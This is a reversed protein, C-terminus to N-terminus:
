QQLIPADPSLPEIGTIHLFLILTLALASYAVWGFAGFMIAKGFRQPIRNKGVFERVFRVQKLGLSLSWSIWFGFFLAIMLYKGFFTDRIFPEAMTYAFFTFFSWKVWAMNRAALEDDGLERWNLGQLFGGFMPTFLLTLLVCALPNYIKPLPKAQQEPEQQPHRANDNTRGQNKEPMFELPLSKHITAARVM